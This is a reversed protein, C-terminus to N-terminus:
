YTALYLADSLKGDYIALKDYICNTAREIDAEILTFKVAEDAANDIVKDIVLCEHSNSMTQMARRAAKM